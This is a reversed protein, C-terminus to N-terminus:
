NNETLIDYLEEEDGPKYGQHSYIVKGDKVVFVHPINNVNLAQKLNQNSDLLINYEWEHGNVMPQVRRATRSDDTSIAIFEFDLEDQWEEYVEHIADLEKICPGCWTAWFSVVVMSHDETFEKLNTVKGKTDKLDMNPLEKQAFSYTSFFLAIFYIIYKKM